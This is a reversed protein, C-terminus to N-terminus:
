IRVRSYQCNHKLPCRSCLPNHPKCLTAALDLVAWNLRQPARSKGVLQAATEWVLPCRRAEFRSPTIAFVRTIVRAINTDIM